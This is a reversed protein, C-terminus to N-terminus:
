RIGGGPLFLTHRKYTDAIRIVGCRLLERIAEGAQREGVCCWGAVFARALPAPDGPTGLWRVAFLLRVGDYVQRVSPPMDPPLPPLVVAAPQLLGYEVRMRRGWTAHSPSSLKRATGSRLAAYVEVVTFFEAGSRRHFDHLVVEGGADVCWSASSRSEEHGPLPCRFACGIGTPLGLRRM